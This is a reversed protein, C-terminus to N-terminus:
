AAAPAVAEILSPFLPRHLYRFVLVADFRCTGLSPPPDTEWIWWRAPSRLQRRAAAARLDAIIDAERDVAHVRYGLRALDLAHRGRGCAVDLVRGHPPLLELHNLLWASPTGGISETM